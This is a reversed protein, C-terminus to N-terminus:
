RAPRRRTPSSGRVEDAYIDVLYSDHERAVDGHPRPGRDEGLLGILGYAPDEDSPLDALFAAVSERVLSGM